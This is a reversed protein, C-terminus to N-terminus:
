PRRGGAAYQFLVVDGRGGAPLMVRPHFGADLLLPAFPAQWPRGLDIEFFLAIGPIERLISHIHDELNSAADRGWWVPRLVARGRSKNFTASLVSYPYSAEGEEQTLRVERAFALRECSERLFAELLPHVWSVGGEDERIQRYYVPTEVAGNAATDILSGLIEFYEVPLFPSPLRSYIGSVDSKAIAAICAEVLHRGTAVGQPQGFLYPGFFEVLGSGERWWAIGGGLSGRADEAVAVGYEGSAAMDALKGPILFDRPCSGKPAHRMLLRSFLKLTEADPTKVVPASLPGPLPIEGPATEPYVKDKRFTIELRDEGYRARIKDVMRAAILLGAEAPLEDGDCAVSSTLNFARMNFFRTQFSFKLEAYYFGDRCTLTVNDAAAGPGTLHSFIEESALTLSLAEAKALGFSLASKEAFATVVPLFAARPPVTLSVERDPRFVHMMNM